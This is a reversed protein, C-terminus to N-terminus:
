TTIFASWLWVSKIRLQSGAVQRSQLKKATAFEPTKESSLTKKTLIVVGFACSLLWFPSFCLRRSQSCWSTNQAVDYLAPSAGSATM